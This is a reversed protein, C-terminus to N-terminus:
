PVNLKLVISRLKHKILHTQKRVHYYGFGITFGHFVAFFFITWVQQFDEHECNKATKKMKLFGGVFWCFHRLKECDRQSLAKKLRPYNVTHRFFSPRISGSTKRTRQGRRLVNPNEPIRGFQRPTQHDRIKDADGLRTKYHHKTVTKLM